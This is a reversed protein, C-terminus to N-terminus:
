FLERGRPLRNFDAQYEAFAKRAKERRWSVNPSAEEGTPPEGPDGVHVEPLPAEELTESQVIPVDIQPLEMQPLDQIVADAAEASNFDPQRRKPM